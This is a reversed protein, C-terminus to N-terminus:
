CRFNAVLASGAELFTNKDAEVFAKQLLSSHWSCPRMESIPMSEGTNPSDGGTASFTVEGGSTTDGAHGGRNQQTVTEGACWGHIIRCFICSLGTSRRLINISRCLISALGTSRSCGAVLNLVLRM